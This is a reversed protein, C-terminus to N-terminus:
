EQACESGGDDKRKRNGGKGLQGAGTVLDVLSDALQLHAFATGAAVATRKM